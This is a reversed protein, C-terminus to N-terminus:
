ETFESINYKQIINTNKMVCVMRDRVHVSVSMLNDFSSLLTHLVIVIIAM